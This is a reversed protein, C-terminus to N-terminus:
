LKGAGANNIVTTRLETRETETSVPALLYSYTQSPYWFVAPDAPDLKFLPANAASSEQIAKVAAFADFLTTATPPTGTVRNM